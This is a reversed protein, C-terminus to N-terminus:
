DEAAKRITMVAGPVDAFVGALFALDGDACAEKELRVTHQIVTKGGECLIKHSFHLRGMGPVDTRDCHSENEIVETLTFPMAPMDKMKM